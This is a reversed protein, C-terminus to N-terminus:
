PCINSNHAVSAAFEDRALDSSNRVNHTALRNQTSALARTVSKGRRHADDWDQELFVECLSDM